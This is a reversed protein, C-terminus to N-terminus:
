EAGLRELTDYTAHSTQSREARGRRSGLTGRPGVAHRIFPFPSVSGGRRMRLDQRRTRPVYLHSREGLWILDLHLLGKLGYLLRSSTM